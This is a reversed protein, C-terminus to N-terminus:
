YKVGVYSNGTTEDIGKYSEGVKLANYQEQTTVMPLTSEQADQYIANFLGTSNAGLQASMFADLDRVTASDGQEIARARGMEVDIEIAKLLNNLLRINGETSKDESAEIERLLDGERATFAAGFTPKLAQLVNKRLNYALEAEDGSGIGLTNRLRLGIGAFGGTDVIGNLLVLSAKLNPVSKAADLSDTIIKQSRVVNAQAAATAGAEAPGSSIAEAMVKEIEVPDTIVGRGPVIVRPDAEGPLYQVATGNIYKQIGSSGELSSGGGSRMFERYSGTGPVLGSAGARMELARFTQPVDGFYGSQQGMAVARELDDSVAGFGGTQFDQLTNESETSDIGMQRELQIRDQMLDIFGQTDGSQAMLLGAQADQAITKALAERMQLSQMGQAQRMQNEQMLQQEFQPLRGGVAAGLARFRDGQSIDGYLSPRQNTPQQNLGALGMATQGVNRGVDIATQGIGSLANRIDELAM